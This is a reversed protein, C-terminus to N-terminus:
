KQQLIATNTPDDGSALSLMSGHKLADSQGCRCGEFNKCKRTVIMEALDLAGNSAELHTGPELVMISPFVMVCVDILARRLEPIPIPSPNSGETERDLMNWAHEAPSM